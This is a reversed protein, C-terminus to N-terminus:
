RTGQVDVFVLGAFEEFFIAYRGGLTADGGARLLRPLDRAADLPLDHHLRLDMGTAAPFARELISELAAHM